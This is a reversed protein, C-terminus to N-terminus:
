SDLDIDLIKAAARVKDTTMGDPVNYAFAFSHRFQDWIKPLERFEKESMYIRGVDKNGRKYVSEVILYKMDFRYEMFSSYPPKFYAYKTGVTEITVTGSNLWGQNSKFYVEQGVQFKMTEEEVRLGCRGM